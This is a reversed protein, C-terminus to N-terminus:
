ELNDTRDKAEAITQYESSLVLIKKMLEDYERTRPKTERLQLWLAKIRDLTEIIKDM